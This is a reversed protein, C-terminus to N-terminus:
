MNSSPIENTDLVQISSIASFRLHDVRNSRPHFVMLYDDRWVAMEFSLIEFRGGSDMVIAFPEFTQEAM